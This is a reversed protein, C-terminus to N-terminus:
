PSQAPKTGELLRTRLTVEPLEPVVKGSKVGAEEFKRLTPTLRVDM